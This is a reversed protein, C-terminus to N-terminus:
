FEKREDTDPMKRFSKGNKKKKEIGWEDDDNV